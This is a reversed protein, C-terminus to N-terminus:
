YEEDNNNQEIHFEMAHKQKSNREFNREFDREFNRVFNVQKILKVNETILFRHMEFQLCDILEFNM